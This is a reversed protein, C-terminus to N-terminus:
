LSCTSDAPYAQRASLRVVLAATDADVIYDAVPNRILGLKFVSVDDVDVQRRNNVTPVAILRLREDDSVTRRYGIFRATHSM